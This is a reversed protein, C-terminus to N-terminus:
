HKKLRRLLARSYFIIDGFLGKTKEKKTDQSFANLIKIGSLMLFQDSFTIYKKAHKFTSKVKRCSVPM